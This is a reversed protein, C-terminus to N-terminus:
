ESDSGEDNTQSAIALSLEEPGVNTVHKLAIDAVFQVDDYGDDFEEAIGKSIRGLLTRRDFYIILPGM